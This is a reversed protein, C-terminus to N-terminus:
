PAPRGRHVLPAPEGASVRSEGLAEAATLHEQAADLEGLDGLVDALGVHLDAHTALPARTSRLRARSM